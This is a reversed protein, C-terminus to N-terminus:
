RKSSLALAAHAPPHDPRRKPPPPPKLPYPTSSENSCKTDSVPAPHRTSGARPTAHTCLCVHRSLLRLSQPQSGNHKTSTSMARRCGTGLAVPVPVDHEGGLQHGLGAIGGLTTLVGCRGPACVVSSVDLTLGQYLLKFSCPM